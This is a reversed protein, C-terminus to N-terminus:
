LFRQEFARFYLIGKKKILFGQTTWKSSGDPPPNSRLHVPEDQEGSHAFGPAPSPPPRGAQSGAPGPPGAWSKSRLAAAARDFM